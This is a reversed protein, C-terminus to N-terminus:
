NEDMVIPTTERYHQKMELILHLKSKVLTYRARKFQDNVTSQAIGLAKAIDQEKYGEIKLDIIYQALLPLQDYLEEAIDVGVIRQLPTMELRKKM